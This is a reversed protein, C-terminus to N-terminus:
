HENPTSEVRVSHEDIPEQSITYARARVYIVTGEVLELDRTHEAFADSFRDLLNQYHEPDKLEVLETRLSGDPNIELVAVPAESEVGYIVKQLVDHAIFATKFGDLTDAIEFSVVNQPGSPRAHHIGHEELIHFLEAIQQQAEVLESRTQLITQTQTHITRRMEQLVANLQATPSLQGPSSVQANNPRSMESM